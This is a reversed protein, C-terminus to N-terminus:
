SVFPVLLSFNKDRALRELRTFHLVLKDPGNTVYFSFSPNKICHCSNVELFKKPM